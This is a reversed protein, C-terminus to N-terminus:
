SNPGPGEATSLTPILVQSFLSGSQAGRMAGHKGLAPCHSYPSVLVYDNAKLSSVTGSRVSLEKGFGAFCVAGLLIKEAEEGLCLQWLPQMESLVEPM